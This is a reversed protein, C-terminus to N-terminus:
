RKIKFHWTGQRLWAGDDLAALAGKLIWPGPKSTESCYSRKGNKRVYKKMSKFAKSMSEPRDFSTPDDTRIYYWPYDSIWGPIIQLSESNFSWKSINFDFAPGGYRQQIYWRHRGDNHHIEQILLPWKFWLPSTVFFRAPYGDPDCTTAVEVPNNLETLRPTDAGDMTFTASFNDSLFRCFAITDSQTMFFNIEAM